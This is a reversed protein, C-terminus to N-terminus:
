AGALGGQQPQTERRQRKFLVRAAVLLALAFAASGLGAGTDTWDFGSSPGAAPAAPATPSAPVVVYKPGLQDLQNLQTSSSRQPQRSSGLDGPAWHAQALAPTAAAIAAAALAVIATRHSM